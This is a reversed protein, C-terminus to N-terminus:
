LTSVVVPLLCASSSLPSQCRPTPTPLRRNETLYFPLRRSISHHLLLARFVHAEDGMGGRLWLEIDVEGVTATENAWGRGLFGKWERAREDMHGMLEAVLTHRLRRGCVHTRDERGQM